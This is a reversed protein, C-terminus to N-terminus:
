IALVQASIARHFRRQGPASYFPFPPASRQPDALFNGAGTCNTALTLAGMAVWKAQILVAV